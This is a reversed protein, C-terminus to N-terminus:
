LESKQSCYPSLRYAVVSGASRMGSMSFNKAAVPQHPHPMAMDQWTGRYPIVKRFLRVAAVAPFLWTNFYSVYDLSLQAQRALQELDRRRYRRKHHNEDDHRSWLFNFAPVTIVIRGGSKLMSSLTRLGALDEDVHELVDFAAILDFAIPLEPIGHPLEGPLVPALKRARALHAAQPDQELCTLNGFQSLMGINGGTGCGVELVEAGMPLHLRRLLTELIERRALFWWHEDELQRMLPYLSAEM